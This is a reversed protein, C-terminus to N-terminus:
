CIANGDISALNTWQDVFVRDLERMCPFSLKWTLTAFDPVTQDQLLNKLVEVCIQLTRTNQPFNKGLQM